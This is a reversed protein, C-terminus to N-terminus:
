YPGSGTHIFRCDFTALKTPLYQILQHHTHDVMSIVCDEAGVGKKGAHQNPSIINM